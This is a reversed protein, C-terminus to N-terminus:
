RFNYYSNVLSAISEHVTEWLVLFGKLLGLVKM